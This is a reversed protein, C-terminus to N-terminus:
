STCRASGCDARSLVSAGSRQGPSGSYIVAPILRNGQDKTKRGAFALAAVGTAFLPLAAPVPIVATNFVSLTLSTLRVTDEQEDFLPVLVDVLSIECPGSSCGVIEYLRFVSANGGRRSNLIDGFFEESEFDATM